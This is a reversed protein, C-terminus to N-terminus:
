HSIKVFMISKLDPAASAPIGPTGHCVWYKSGQKTPSGIKVLFIQIFTSHAFGINLPRRWGQGKFGALQFAKHCAIKGRIKANSLLRPTKTKIGLAVNDYAVPCAM